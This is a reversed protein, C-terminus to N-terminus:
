IRGSAALSSMSDSYVTKGVLYKSPWFVIYTCIGILLPLADFVYFFVEHTALYNGGGITQALETVRYICRVMFMASSFILTRLVIGWPEKSPRVGGKVLRRYAHVLLMIFVAFSITQLTLGLLLTDTGIRNNTPDTSAALGGGGGQILFTAVDSLVLYQAVRDSKTLYYKRDVCKMMFCGYLIYNFALYAAPLLITFLQEVRFISLSEPYMAALIRMFLCFSMAASGIPLCLGWWTRHVFVHDFLFLSALMYLTAAVGAAPKSPHYDAILALSMLSLNRM